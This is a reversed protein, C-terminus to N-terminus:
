EGDEVDAIDSLFDSSPARAADSAVPEVSDARLSAGGSWLMVRLGRFVVPQLVPLAPATAAPVTVSIQEPARQSDVDMVFVTVRWLPVGSTRDTAQTDTAHGTEDYERKPSVAAAVLQQETGTKIPFTSAM